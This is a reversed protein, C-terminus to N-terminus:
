VMLKHKKENKLALYSLVVFVEIKKSYSLQLPMVKLEDVLYYRFPKSLVGGM